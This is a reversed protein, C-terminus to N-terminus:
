PHDCHKESMQVQSDYLSEEIVILKSDGNLLYSTGPKYRLKRAVEM